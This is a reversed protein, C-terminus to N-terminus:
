CKEDVPACNKDQEELETMEYEELYMQSKRKEEKLKEKTNRKFFGVKWMVGVTVTVILLSGVVAVVYAWVPLSSSQQELAGHSVSTSVVIHDSAVGIIAPANVPMVHAVISLKLDEFGFERSLLTAEWLRTTIVVGAESGAYMDNLHCTLVTCHILDTECERKLSEIVEQGTTQTANSVLQDLIEVDFSSQVSTGIAAQSKPEYNKQRHESNVQSITAIARPNIVYEDECYVNGAEDINMVYLLPFGQATHTPLAVFLSAEPVVSPGSNSAFMTYNVHNGIETEVNPFRSFNKQLLYQDPNSVGELLFDAEAGVPVYMRAINDSLTSSLEINSSSVSFQVNLSILSLPIHVTSMVIEVIHTTGSKLPDGLDCEVLTEDHGKDQICYSNVSSIVVQILSLVSPTTVVLKSEYADEGQNTIMARFTITTKARIIYVSGPLLDLVAVDVLRLDPICLNDSGCEPRFHIFARALNKKQSPLTHNIVPPLPQYLSVNSLQTKHGSPLSYKFLVEVPTTRDRINKLIFATLEQCVQRSGKYNPLHFIGVARRHGTSNFFARSKLGLSKKRQDLIVRYNIRNLSSPVDTVVRVCVNVVVCTYLEGSTGFCTQPFNNTILNPSLTVRGKISVVPRTRLLTIEESLYSGVVLDPYGNGDADFAGAMSAGFAMSVPRKHAVSSASIIQSAQRVLGDQSGFHIYITGLLHDEGGYPASIAVDNYGDKNVDGLLVIAHGFRGFPISGTLEINATGFRGNLNKFVSVHGIEPRFDSYTPGAVLLDDLGDGTTDAALVTHGFYSGSYRGYVTFSKLLQITQKEVDQSFVNVRGYQGAANWHPVGVAYQVISENTESVFQGVSLSYGQLRVRHTNNMSGSTTRTLEGVDFYNIEQSFVAGLWVDTGPAGMILTKDNNGLAVAIGAECDGHSLVTEQAEDQNRQCPKYVGEVAFHQSYVVCRGITEWQKGDKTVTTQLHRHACAAFRGTSGSVVSVGM